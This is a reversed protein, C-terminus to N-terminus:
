GGAAHDDSEGRHRHHRPIGGHIHERHVRHGHEPECYPDIVCEDDDTSEVLFQPSCRHLIGNGVRQCRRASRHHSRCRSDRDPQAPEEEEIDRGRRRCRNQACQDYEGRHNQTEGRHRRRQHQEMAPHGNRFSGIGAPVNQGMQLVKPLPERNRSQEATQNQQSHEGHWHQSDM